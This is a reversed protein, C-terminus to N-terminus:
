KKVLRYHPGEVRYPSCAEIIRIRLRTLSQGPNEEALQVSPRRVGLEAAMEIKTRGSKLRFEKAVAALEAETIGTKKLM